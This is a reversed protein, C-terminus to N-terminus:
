GGAPRGMDPDIDEAAPANVIRQHLYRERIEDTTLVEWGKPLEKGARKLEATWADVRGARTKPVVSEAPQQAGITVPPSDDEQVAAVAFGLAGGAM